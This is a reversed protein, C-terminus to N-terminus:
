LYQKTNRIEGFKRVLVDSEKFAQIQWWFTIYKNQLKLVFLNWFTLM